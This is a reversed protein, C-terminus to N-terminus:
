SHAKLARARHLQGKATLATGDNTGDGYDNPDGVGGDVLQWVGWTDTLGLEDLWGFWTSTDSALSGTSCKKVPDLDCDPVDNLLLLTDKTAGGAALLSRADPLLTGMCWSEAMVGQAVAAAPPRTPVDLKRGISEMACPPPVSLQAVCPRLSGDTTCSLKDM